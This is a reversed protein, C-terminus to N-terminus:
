PEKCSCLVRLLKCTPREDRWLADDLEPDCEGIYKESKGSDGKSGDM